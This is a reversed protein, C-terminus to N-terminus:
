KLNGPYNLNSHNYGAYVGAGFGIASVRPASALGIVVALAVFM